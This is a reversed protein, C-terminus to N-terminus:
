DALSGSPTSGDAFTFTITAEPDISTVIGTYFVEAQEKLLDVNGTVYGEQAEDSLVANVMEVEDIDPTVWSLVGGTEVAVEFAPDDYGILLFEPIHIAYGNEGVKEVKVDGGEIGLKAAFSYRLFSNRETGPVAVGLFSGTSSQQSIGEIGLSLLVVQEETSISRIVQTNSSETDSGFVSGFPPRLVGFVFLLLPVILLGLIVALLWGRQRAAEARAPSNM